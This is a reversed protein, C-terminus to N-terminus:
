WPPGSLATMATTGTFVWCHDPPTSDSQRVVTGNTGVIIIVAMVVGKVIVAGGLSFFLVSIMLYKPILSSVSDIDSRTWM